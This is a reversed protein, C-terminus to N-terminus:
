VELLIYISLLCLLTVRYDSFCLTLCLTYLIYRVILFFIMGTSCSHQEIETDDGEM